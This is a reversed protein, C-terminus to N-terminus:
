IFGRLPNIKIAFTTAFLFSRLLTMFWRHCVGIRLNIKVTYEGNSPTCIQNM